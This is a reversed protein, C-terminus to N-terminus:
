WPNREDSVGDICGSITALRFQLFSSLPELDTASAGTSLAIASVIDAFQSTGPLNRTAIFKSNGDVLASKKKLDLEPVAISIGRLIM